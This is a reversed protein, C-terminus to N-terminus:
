GVKCLRELLELSQLTIKNGNLNILRDNKFETLTRSVTEKTASIFDAIEQRSLPLNFASSYYINNSFFLLIEALRGPVQKCTIGIMKDVLLSSYGSIQDLLHCTYKGNKCLVDIFINCNTHVVECDELATVSAKYRREGFVTMLGFFRNKGIIGIIISKDPKYEKHLKVLGSKLYLIHTVPINERCIVEGRKYKVIISNENIRQIQNDTLSDFTPLLCDSM